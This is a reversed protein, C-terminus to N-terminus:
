RSVNGTREVRAKITKRSKVVIAIVEDLERWLDGTIKKDSYGKEDLLEIWYQSEDAEEEVIGLKAVMETDSRGRCAARYNAGVSTGSRLLQRGLVEGARTRPLEEVFEIIQLALKKTRDKLQQETM